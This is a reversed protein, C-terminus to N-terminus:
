LMGNLLKWMDNVNLLDQSALNLRYMYYDSNSSQCVQQRFIPKDVVEGLDASFHAIPRLHLHM